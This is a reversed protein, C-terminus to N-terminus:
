DHCVMTTIVNLERCLARQRCFKATLAKGGVGRLFFKATLPGAKATLFRNMAVNSNGTTHLPLQFAVFGAV